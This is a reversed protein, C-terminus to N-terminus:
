RAKRLYIVWYVGAVFAGGGILNGITVPVLNAALGSLSVGEAGYLMAVPM